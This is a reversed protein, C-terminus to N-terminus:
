GGDRWPALFERTVCAFAIGLTFSPSVSTVRMPSPVFRSLRVGSRMANMLTATADQTLRDVSGV